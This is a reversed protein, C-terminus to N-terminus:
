NNSKYNFFGTLQGFIVAIIGIIIAIMAKKSAKIETAKIKSLSLKEAEQSLNAVIPEIKHVVNRMDAKVKIIHEDAEVLADFLERYKQVLSGVNNRDENSFGSNNFENM